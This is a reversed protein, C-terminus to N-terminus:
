WSLANRRWSPESTIKMQSTGHTADISHLVDLESRLSAEMVDLSPMSKATAINPNARLQEIASRIAVYNLHLFTVAEWWTDPFVHHRSTEPLEGFTYVLSTAFKVTTWHHRLNSNFGLLHQSLQICPDGLMKKEPRVIKANSQVMERFAPDMDPGPPSNILLAIISENHQLNLEIEFFPKPAVSRSPIVEQVRTIWGTSSSLSKVKKPASDDAEAKGPRKKTPPPSAPSQPEEKEDFVQADIEEDEDTEPEEPDRDTEARQVDDEADALAARAKEKKSLTIGSLGGVVFRPKRPDAEQEYKVRATELEAKATEAAQPKVQRSVFGTSKRATQKTKAGNMPVRCVTM